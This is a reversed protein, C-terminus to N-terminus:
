LNEFICRMCLDGIAESELKAVMEGDERCSWERFIRMSKQNDLYSGFCELQDPKLTYSITVVNGNSDKWYTKQNQIFTTISFPIEDTPLGMYELMQKGENKEGFFGQILNQAYLGNIKTNINIQKRKM